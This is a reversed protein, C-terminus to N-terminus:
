YYNKFSLSSQKQNIANQSTRSYRLEYESLLLMWELLEYAIIELFM